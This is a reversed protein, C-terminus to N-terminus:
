KVFCSKEAYQEAEKLRSRLDKSQKPDRFVAGKEGPTSHLLTFTRASDYEQFTLKEAIKDVKCGCAYQNIYSLGGHKAVCNLVYEVRDHTPFDNVRVKEEIPASATETTPTTEPTTSCGSLLTSTFLTLAAFYSLQKM